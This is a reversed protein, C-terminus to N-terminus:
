KRLKSRCLTQMKADNFHNVLKMELTASSYDLEAFRLFDNLREQYLRRSGFDDLVEYWEKSNQGEEGRVDSDLPVFEKQIAENIPPDEEDWFGGALFDIDDVARKIEEQTTLRQSM